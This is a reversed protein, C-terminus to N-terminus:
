LRPSLAFRVVLTQNVTTMSLRLEEGERLFRNNGQALWGLQPLTAAYFKTAAEVTLPGEAQAEVIRGEAKDFSIALDKREVLGPMLPIDDLNTLFSAPSLGAAALVTAPVAWLGALLLLCILAGLRFRPVYGLRQVVMM